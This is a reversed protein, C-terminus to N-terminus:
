KIHKHYIDYDANRYFRRHKRNTICFDRHCMCSHRIDHCISKIDIDLLIIRRVYIIIRQKRRTTKLFIRKIPTNKDFFPKSSITIRYVIRRIEKYFITNHNATYTQIPVFSLINCQFVTFNDM